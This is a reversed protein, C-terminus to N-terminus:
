KILSLFEKKDLGELRPYHYLNIVPISSMRAIQIAKGTGGVDEGNRTWCIVLNSPSNLTPGLIQQCNRAFLSRVLANRHRLDSWLTDIMKFASEPPIFFESLNENYLKRPLFIEKRGGALDCGLEFAVDAGLAGGSRLTWSEEAMWQAIRSMAICVESPTERAGIGAYYNM